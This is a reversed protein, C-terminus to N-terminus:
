WWCSEGGRTCAPLPWRLPARRQLQARVECSDLGLKNIIKEVEAEHNWNPDSGHALRSSLEIHEKVSLVGILHDNTSPSYRVQESWTYGDLAQGNANIKAGDAGGVALAVVAHAHRSLITTL